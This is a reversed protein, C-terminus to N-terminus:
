IINYQMVNYEFLTSYLVFKTNSFELSIVNLVKKRKDIPTNYYDTWKRMSMM